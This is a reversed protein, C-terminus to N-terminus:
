YTGSLQSIRSYGHSELFAIIEVEREEQTGEFKGREPMKFEIGHTKDYSRNRYLRVELNSTKLPGFTEEAVERLNLFHDLSSSYLNSRVVITFRGEYFVFEKIFRVSM